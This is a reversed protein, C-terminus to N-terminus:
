LSDNELSLELYNWLFDMAIEEWKQEPVQLRQLLGAHRQHKTEVRQCTDCPAVYEAIDRKIEYWWYTSNVDHSM